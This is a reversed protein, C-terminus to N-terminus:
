GEGRRSVPAFEAVLESGGRGVDVPRQELETARLFDHHDGCRRHELAGIGDHSRRGRVELREAGLADFGKRVFGVRAAPADALGGAELQFAHQAVLADGEAAAVGGQLRHGCAWRVQDDQVEVQRIGMAAVHERAEPARGGGRHQHVRRPGVLAVLDRHEVGARGVAHDKGRFGSPPRRSLRGGRGDPAQAIRSRRRCM